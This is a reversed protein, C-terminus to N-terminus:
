GVATLSIGDFFISQRAFDAPTLQGLASHPREENYDCRWEEILQRADEMSM